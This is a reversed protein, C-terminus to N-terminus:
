GSYAARVEINKGSGGRDQGVAASRWLPIALAGAVPGTRAQSPDTSRMASANEDTGRLNNRGRPARQRAPM